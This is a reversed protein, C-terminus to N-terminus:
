CVVPGSGAALDLRAGLARALAVAEHVRASRLGDREIATVRHASLGSRTAVEGVTLHLGARLRGLPTMAALGEARRAIGGDDAPFFTALFEAPDALVVEDIDAPWGADRIETLLEGALTIAQAGHETVAEPGALVALLTVTDAPEDALLVRIDSGLRDTRLELLGPVPEAPRQSEPPPEPRAAASPQGTYAPDSLERIRSLTETASVTLARLLEGAARLDERRQALDPDLEGGAAEIAEAIRVTAEAATYRAKATEKATRFADVKLQVRESAHALATERQRAAAFQAALSDLVAADAGVAQQESLRLEFGHRRTAADAVRRRVQQFQELLHQYAHDAAARPDDTAPDAPRGPEDVFALGSSEASELVALLAAGVEAATLPESEGLETLWDRLEATM